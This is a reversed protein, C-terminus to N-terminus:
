PHLWEAQASAQLFRARLHGQRRIQLVDLAEVRCRVLAFVDRGPLLEDEDPMHRLLEAPLNPSPGEPSPSSPAHPALYTRRSGRGVRSWGAEFEPGETLVEAVTDARLQLKRPKNMM